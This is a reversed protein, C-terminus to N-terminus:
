QQVVLGRAVTQRRIIKEVLDLTKAVIDHPHGVIGRRECSRDIVSDLEGNRGSPVSGHPARNDCQCSPRNRKGNQREASGVVDRQAQPDFSREGFQDLPPVARGSCRKIDAGGTSRPSAVREDFRHPRPEDNRADPRRLRLDIVDDISVRPKPHRELGKLLNQGVELRLFHRQVDIPPAERSRKEENFDHVNSRDARLQLQGGADIRAVARERDHGCSFRVTRKQDIVQCM